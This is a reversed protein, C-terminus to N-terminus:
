HGSRRGQYENAAIRVKAFKGTFGYLNPIEAADGVSVMNPGFRVLKGYKQHLDIHIDHARNSLIWSVRPLNSFAALFPGPIQQLLIYSYLSWLSFILLGLIPISVFNAPFADLVRSLAAVAAM